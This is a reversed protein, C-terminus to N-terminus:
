SGVQPPDRHGRLTLRRLPVYRLVDVRGAAELRSLVHGASGLKPDAPFPCEQLGGRRPDYLFTYGRYGTASRQGTAQYSIYFRKVEWTGDRSRSFTALRRVTARGQAEDEELGLFRDNERLAAHLERLHPGLAEVPQLFSFPHPKNM